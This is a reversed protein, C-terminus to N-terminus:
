NRVTSARSVEERPIAQSQLPASDEVVAFARRVLSTTAQPFAGPLVEKPRSTPPRGGDMM